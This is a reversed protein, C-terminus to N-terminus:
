RASTDVGAVVPRKVFVRDLVVYKVLWVLFYAVLTAFNVILGSGFWRDAAEAFVTSVALGVAALGIFPMVERRVDHRQDRVGWVWARSLLYAPVAAILGAFLNARGGSWGWISNAVFLLGHHNVNNVMTVLLFRGARQSHPTARARVITALTPASPADSTVIM